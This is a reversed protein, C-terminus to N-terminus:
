SLLLPSVLNLGYLILVFLALDFLAPHWVMRYVGCAALIRRAAWGLLLAAVALVLPWPLYVGYLDFEGIM